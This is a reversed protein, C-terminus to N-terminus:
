GHTVTEAASAYAQGLLDGLAAILNDHHAFGEDETITVEVLIGPGGVRAIMLPPKVMEISVDIKAGEIVEDVPEDVVDTVEGPVVQEAAPSEEARHKV